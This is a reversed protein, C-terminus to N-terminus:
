LCVEAGFQCFGLVRHHGKAGLDIVMKVGGVIKANQPALQVPMQALQQGQAVMQILHCFVPSVGRARLDPNDGTLVLLRAPITAARDGAWM